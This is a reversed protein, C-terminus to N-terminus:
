WLFTRRKAFSASVERTTAFLLMYLVQRTHHNTLPRSGEIPNDFTIHQRCLQTYWDINIQWVLGLPLSVFRQHLNHIDVDRITWTGGRRRELGAQIARWGWGDYVDRMPKSPDSFTDHGKVMLPAVQGPEDGPGRWEQLQDYKGPRLLLHQIAKKPHVYPLIKTPTRKM